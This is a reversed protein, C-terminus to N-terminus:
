ASGVSLLLECLWGFVAPCAKPFLFGFIAMAGVFVLYYSGALYWSSSAFFFNILLWYAGCLPISFVLTVFGSILRSSLTYDSDISKVHPGLAQTFPVRRRISPQFYCVSPNGKFSHNAAKRNCHQAM